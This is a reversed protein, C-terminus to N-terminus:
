FIKSGESQYSEDMMFGQNQHVEAESPTESPYDSPISESAVSGSEATIPYVPHARPIKVEPFVFFQQYIDLIAQDTYSAAVSSM